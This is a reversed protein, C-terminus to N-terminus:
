ALRTNCLSELIRIPAKDPAALAPPPVIFTQELAFQGSLVAHAVGDTLVIWTSGPPFEIRTKEFNNQFDANEKLFNHFALMFQDYPARGAGPWGLEAAIARM